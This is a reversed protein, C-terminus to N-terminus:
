RDAACSTACGCISGTWPAARDNQRAIAAAEASRQPGEQIRQQQHRCIREHEAHHQLRAKARFARCRIRATNEPRSAATAPTKLPRPVRATRSRSCRFKTLFSTNGSSVSGAFRTIEPATVSYEAQQDEDGSQQGRAVGIGNRHQPQRHQHDRLKQQGGPKHQNRAASPIKTRSRPAIM